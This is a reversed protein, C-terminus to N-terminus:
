EGLEYEETGRGLYERVVSGNIEGLLDNIKEEDPKDPLDTHKSLEKLKNDFEAVMDMFEKTPTIGDVLFKGNRISMLFDHEKERYTVIEGKELIDFAMLYLRTLHMMHKSLKGHETAKDNRTSRRYDDHVNTVIQSVAIFKDLPLEGSINIQTAGDAEYVAVNNGIIGDRRLAILGKAISRTENQVVEDNSRGSKNILRNMQANAYGGFSNVARKSLFLDKNQLLLEGAPSVHLYHEPKLGLMEITNPNCSALLKVIKDVTYITTDTGNHVFQECDRGTLIDRPSRTMIGRWDWDSTEIDTGYAHSGGLGLLIINDGLRPDERLFDYEPLAINKLMEEHTTM